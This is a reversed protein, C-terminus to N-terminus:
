TAPLTPGHDIPFAKCGDLEWLRGCQLGEVGQVRAATARASCKYFFPALLESMVFMHSPGPAQPYAHICPARASCRVHPREHVGRPLLGEKVNGQKMRTQHLVRALSLPMSLAAARPTIPLPPAGAM